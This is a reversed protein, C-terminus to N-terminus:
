SKEPGNNSKFIKHVDDTPQWVSSTPFNVVTVHKSFNGQWAVETVLVISREDPNDICPAEATHCIAKITIRVIMLYALM